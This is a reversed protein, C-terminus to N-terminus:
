AWRFWGVHVSCILGQSILSKVEKFRANNANVIEMESSHETFLPYPPTNMISGQLLQGISQIVM